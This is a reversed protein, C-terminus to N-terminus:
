ITCADDCNRSCFYCFLIFGGFIFTRETDNQKTEQIKENGKSRIFCISINDYGCFNGGLLPKQLNADSFSLLSKVNRNFLKIVFM